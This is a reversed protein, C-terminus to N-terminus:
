TTHSTSTKSPDLIKEYSILPPTSVVGTFMNVGVTSFDTDLADILAPLPCRTLSHTLSLPPLHCRTRTRTLTRATLPHTLFLAPLPSSAIGHASPIRVAQPHTRPSFLSFSLLYFGERIYGSSVRCTVARQFCSRTHAGGRRRGVLCGGNAEGSVGALARCTLYANVAEDSV